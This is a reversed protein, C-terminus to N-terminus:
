MSHEIRAQNGAENFMRASRAVDAIRRALEELRGGWVAM